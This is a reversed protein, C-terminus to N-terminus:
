PKFRIDVKFQDGHEPDVSWQVMNQTPYLDRGSELEALANKLLRIVGEELTRRPPRPPIPPLAIKSTLGM